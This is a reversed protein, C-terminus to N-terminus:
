KLTDLLAEYMNNTKNLVLASSTYAQQARMMNTLEETNSVPSHSSLSQTITYTAGGGIQGLSSLSTSGATTSRVDVSKKHYDSTASNVINESAVAVSTSQIRMGSVSANLANSLM